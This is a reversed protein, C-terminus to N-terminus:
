GVNLRLLEQAGQMLQNRMEVLLNFALTRERLSLMAQPLNDSKGLLVANVESLATKEKQDVAYFATSLVKEFSPAQPNSSIHPTAAPASPSSQGTIGKLADRVMPNQGLLSSAKEAGAKLGQLDKLDNINLNSGQLMPNVQQMLSQPLNQISSIDM